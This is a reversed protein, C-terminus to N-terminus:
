TAVSAQSTCAATRVVHGRKPQGRKFTASAADEPSHGRHIRMAYADRKIGNDRAIYVWPTGCPAKHVKDQNAAQEFATAWRCNDPSYGKSNDIRDISLEPRYGNQLAWAEFPPFFEWEPCVRIGKGGYIRFFKDNPNNCRNIMGKWRRYLPTGSKNHCPRMAAARCRRGCSLTAGRLLSRSEVISHEGCSCLCDWATGRGPAWVRCLVKLAGFERGTLDAFGSRKV